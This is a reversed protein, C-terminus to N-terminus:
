ESSSSYSKKTPKHAPDMGETQFLSRKIARVELHSLSESRESKRKSSIKVQHTSIFRSRQLRTEVLEQEDEASQHLYPQPAI